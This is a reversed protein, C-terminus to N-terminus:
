ADQSAPSKLLCKFVCPTMALHFRFFHLRHSSTKELVILRVACMSIPFDHKHNISLYHLYHTLFYVFIVMMKTVMVTIMVMIIIIIIIRMMIIDWRGDPCALGGGTCNKTFLWINKEEEFDLFTCIYKHQLYRWIMVKFIM